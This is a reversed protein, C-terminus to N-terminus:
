HLNVRVKHWAKASLSSIKDGLHIPTSQVSPRGLRKSHCENDAFLVTCIIIILKKLEFKFDAPRVM